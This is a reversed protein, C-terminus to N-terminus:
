GRSWWPLGVRRTEDCCRDQARKSDAQIAKREYLEPDGKRVEVQEKSLVVKETIYSYGEELEIRMRKRTKM